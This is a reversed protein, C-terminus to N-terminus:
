FVRHLKVICRVGHNLVLIVDNMQLHMCTSFKISFSDLATKNQTYHVCNTYWNVSM